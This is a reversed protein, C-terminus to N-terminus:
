SKTKKLLKITIHGLTSKKANIEPNPVEEIQLSLDKALDSSNEAMMEESMKKRVSSRPTLRQPGAGCTGSAKDVRRWDVNQPELQIFELNMKLNMSGETMSMRSNLEGLSYKIKAIKNKLELSEM